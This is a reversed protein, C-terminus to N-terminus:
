STFTIAVWYILAFMILLFIVKFETPIYALFDSNITWIYATLGTVIWTYLATSIIFAVLIVYWIIKIFWSM